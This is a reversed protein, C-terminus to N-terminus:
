IKRSGFIASGVRVMNAGEEIAQVFDDSMGMSLIDMSINDYKKTSIDVFITSLKYFFKRSDEPDSLFPPITMLGRVKIGLIGVIEEINNELTEPNFGGKTAENGINVELLIDSCIGLQDSRAGIERALRVSDVSQVLSVRGVVDRVKNTQLHGIFHLSADDYAGEELKGVMEQVRNEGCIKIGASVAERVLNSPVTKTAAVLTIDVPSRGSRIAAEGIQYQIKSINDLLSM